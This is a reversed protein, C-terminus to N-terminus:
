CRWGANRRALGCELFKARFAAINEQIRAQFEPVKKWRDVERQEDVIGM